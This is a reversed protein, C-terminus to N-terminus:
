PRCGSYGSCGRARFFLRVGEGGPLRGPYIAARGGASDFLPGETVGRSEVYETELQRTRPDMALSEVDAARIAVYVGDDRLVLPARQRYFGFIEHPSTELEQMSITVPQRIEVNM